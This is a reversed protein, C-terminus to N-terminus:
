WVLSRGGLCGGVRYEGRVALTEEGEDEGDCHEGGGKRCCDVKGEEGEEGCVEM